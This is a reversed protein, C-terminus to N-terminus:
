LNQPISLRRQRNGVKFTATNDGISQLVWNSIRQGQGLLIVSDMAHRGSPQVVLFREGGRFESGLVQFPQAAARQPQATRAPQIATTPTAQVPVVPKATIAEQLKQVAESLADLQLQLAQIEAKPAYNDFQEGVAQIRTRLEQQTDTLDAQSVTPNTLLAQRQANLQASLQVLQGEIAQIHLSKQDSSAANMLQTTVGLNSFVLFSLVLLWLVLICRCIVTFSLKPKTVSM